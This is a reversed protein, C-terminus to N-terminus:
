KKDKWGGRRRWLLYLKGRVLFSHLSMLVGFVLGATKDLFGFLFFYNWVFKALPKLWEWFSVKKGEQYFCEANLDSRENISTLFESLTQHPYHFLPNKFTGTEGEVRWKEDVSREWQGSGRRALRLIRIKDIEGHRLWRGMFFDIRKFYFGSCTTRSIKKKIEEALKPSVREDADVFFIWDYSAQQLGFNRQQAFDNGLPHELVRAGLKQALVRTKDSSNDDIVLIEDGWRLGGLCEQINKEENKTLVVVSIM